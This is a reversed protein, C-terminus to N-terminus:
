VQIIDTIIDNPDFSIEDSDSAQYDYLAIASLGSSPPPQTPDADAYKFENYNENVHQQEAEYNYSNENPTANSQFGAQMKLPSQHTEEFQEDYTALPAYTPTIKIESANDGWEDENDSLNQQKLYSPPSFNTNQSVPPASHDSFQTPKSRHLLILRFLEQDIFGDVM